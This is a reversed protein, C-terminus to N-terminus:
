GFLAVNVHTEVETVNPTAWAAWEADDLAARSHVTGYLAVKSGEVEVRINKADEEATRKLAELIKRKVDVPKANSEVHIRNKLERIGMVNKLSREAAEKQFFWAVNGRLIVTGDEVTAHVASPVLINWVLANAVAKALDQDPVSHEGPLEVEIKSVVSKVGEVHTACVVAEVKETYSPVIGSLEVIGERVAVGINDDTVIPNFTLADLVDKQIKADKAM